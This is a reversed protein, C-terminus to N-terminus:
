TWVDESYEDSSGLVDRQEFCEPFVDPTLAGLEYCRSAREVLFDVGIHQATFYGQPICQEGTFEL